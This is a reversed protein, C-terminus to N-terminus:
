TLNIKMRELFDAFGDREPVSLQRAVNESWTCKELVGYRDTHRQKAPALPQHDHARDDYDSVEFFELRQRRSAPTPM